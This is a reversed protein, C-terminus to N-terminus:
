NSPPPAPNVVITFASPASSDVGGNATGGNDQLVVTLNASGTMGAALTFSLNGAADMSPPVSFLGPNDNGVMFTLQQQFCSEGDDINAAWSSSYAGSDADVVVNSGPTFGPAHNRVLGTM